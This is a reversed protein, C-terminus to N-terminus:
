LVRYFVHALHLLYLHTKEDRLTMEVSFGASTVSILWYVTMDWSKYVFVQFINPAIENVIVAVGTGTLPRKTM